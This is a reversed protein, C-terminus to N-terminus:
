LLIAKASWIYWEETVENVCNNKVKYYWQWFGGITVRESNNFTIYYVKHIHLYFKLGYLWSYLIFEENKIRSNGFWFCVDQTKIGATENGLNDNPLYARFEYFM